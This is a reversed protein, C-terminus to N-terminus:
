SNQILVYCIIVLPQKAIVYLSLSMQIVTFKIFLRNLNRQLIHCIRQSKNILRDSRGYCITDLPYGEIIGKLFPKQYNADLYINNFLTALSTTPSRLIKIRLNSKQQRMKRIFVHIDPRNINKFIPKSYKLVSICHIM